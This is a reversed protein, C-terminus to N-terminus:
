ISRPYVHRSRTACSNMQGDLQSYLVLDCAKPKFNSKGILSWSAGYGKLIEGAELIANGFVPYATILERGMAHWQAGQGNFVFGLRPRKYAFSAKRGPEQFREALEEISRARVAVVWPHLTRRESLTYALDGPSPLTEVIHSALRRMMTQCAVSDKASVVFVRWTHNYQNVREAVSHGNPRRIDATFPAPELIAHSNTGGYGFNNISARLIKDKPWPVLATPVELRGKELDISPNTVEYNLNPPIMANKLAFATKIVAALGSVPETHGVNTKISGVPISSGPQQCMGFTRSIADAEIPDGASTGTMHAEVYGTESIDLGARRYCEQILKVQADASPSTITTTKGDQNVGTDKIVAHIQDDDRLASSLPKLILAAM